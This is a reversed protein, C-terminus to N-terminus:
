RNSKCYRGESAVLVRWRNFPICHSPRASSHVASSRVWSTPGTQSSEQGIDETARFERQVSEKKKGYHRLVPYVRHPFPIGRPMKYMSCTSFIM